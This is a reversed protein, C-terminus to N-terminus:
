ASWETEYRTDSMYLLVGASFANENHSIDIHGNYKEVSKRVNKLGLGHDKGNKRTVINSELSEQMLGCQALYYEKEKAQLAFEVNETVVKSLTNYLYFIIFANGLANLVGAITGAIPIELLIFISAIINPMPLPKM